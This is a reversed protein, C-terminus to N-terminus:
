MGGGLLDLFEKPTVAQIGLDIARTFDKKNYTIIYNSKSAFALELIHDDYPDKIYPRWLFHIKTKEAISCIYDLLDDIDEDSYIKRNAKRKLISEYEYYLPNSIAIEFKNDGLEELLKYSYGNSSNLASLLVNTDIVAKKMNTNYIM